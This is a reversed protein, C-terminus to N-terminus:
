YVLYTLEKRSVCNTSTVRLKGLSFICLQYISILLDDSPPYFFIRECRVYHTVKISSFNLIFLLLPKVSRRFLRLVDSTPVREKCWGFNLPFHVGTIIGTGSSWLAGLYGVTALLKGFNWLMCCCTHVWFCRRMVAFWKVEGLAPCCFDIQAIM